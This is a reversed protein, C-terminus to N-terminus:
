DRIYEYELGRNFDELRGLMKVCDQPIMINHTDVKVFFMCFQRDVEHDVVNEIEISTNDKFLVKLTYM